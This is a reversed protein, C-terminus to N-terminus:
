GVEAAALCLKLFIKQINMLYLLYEPDELTLFFQNQGQTKLEDQIQRLVTTKGAQRAGTFILIEDSPWYKASKATVERKINM